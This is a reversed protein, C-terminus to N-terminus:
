PTPFNVLFLLSPSTTLYIPSVTGRIQRNCRHHPVRTGYTETGNTDLTKLHLNTHAEGGERAYAFVWVMHGGLRLDLACKTAQARKPSGTPIGLPPQRLKDVRQVMNHPINSLMHDMSLTLLPGTIPYGCAVMFPWSLALTSKPQICAILATV